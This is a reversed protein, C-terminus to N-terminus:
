AAGGARAAALAEVQRSLSLDRVVASLFGERSLVLVAGAETARVTATRPVDRLLAVEGFHDGPGLTAVVGGDTGLVEVHGEALLYCEHGAEGARLLTEGQAFPRRTLQAALSSLREAPLAAFFPSKRLAATHRVLSAFEDAHLEGQLRAFAARDLALVSVESEAKVTAQRRGDGLLAAEGFCDGARLSAVQRSLGSDAEVHVSAAGDLLAFFHQGESGQAVLTAGAPYTRCEGAATVAAREAEPLRAFLPTKALDVPGQTVVGAHTVAKPRLALLARGVAAFLAVLSLPLALALLGAGFLLLGRALGEETLGAGVLRVSTAAGRTLLLRVVWGLWALSLVSTWVLSTEGDFTAGSAVRSLLRRDLYARAHEQLDVKGALTALLRGALTPAFPCLEVVAVVGAGFGLGKSLSSAVLVAVGLGVLGALLALARRPRELLVLADPDPGLWPIGATHGLELHTVPAGLVPTLAGQFWRRLSHAAAMGAFALLVDAPGLPAPAPLVFGLAPVASVLLLAVLPLGPVRVRWLPRSALLRALWRGGRRRAPPGGVLLGQAALSTLLDDLAALPTARHAAYHAEMVEALTRRGDLLVLLRAQDAAVELGVGSPPDFLGASGDARVRVQATPLLAPRVDDFPQPM